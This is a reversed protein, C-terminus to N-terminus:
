AWHRRHQRRRLAPSASPPSGEDLCFEELQLQWALDFSQLQERAAELEAQVAALENELDAAM